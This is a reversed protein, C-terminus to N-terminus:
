NKNNKETVDVTGCREWYALRDQSDRVKIDKPEEIVQGEVYLCSSLLLFTLAPIWKM